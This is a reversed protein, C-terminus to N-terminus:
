GRRIMPAAFSDSEYPFVERIRDAILGDRVRSALENATARLRLQDAPPEGRFRRRLASIALSFKTESLRALEPLEGLVVDLPRQDLMKAFAIIETLTVSSRGRRILTSDGTEAYM